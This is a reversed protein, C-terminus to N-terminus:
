PLPSPTASPMTALVQSWSLVLTGTQGSTVALTAAMSPGGKDDGTDSTPNVAAGMVLTGVTGFNDLLGHRHGWCGPGGKDPCDLNGSGIGDDYMWGYDADLGNSSGGAWETDVVSYDKGPDPPDNADNAGVQANSDLQTTLASFPPLGRDVRELNVAVFIQDPVTMAAYGPPLAMPKVGEQSRANDIAALVTQICGSSSDLGSSACVETYDPNPSITQPPDAIHTASANAPPADAPQLAASAIDAQAQDWTYVLGDPRNTTALTVALSTGGEDGRSTDGTPDFGAGMVLTARDGSGDSGFDDLVIHRDAWCGSQGSRHCGQISGPGDDYMWEYDADLANSIDGIWETDVSRFGRGPAGPLRAAAAATVAEADLVPSLGAFPDLGRDVREADLVVLLQEPVSLTAYDAPITMPKLHERARAADIAALTVRLCPTSQDPGSPSCAATYDPKATVSATPDRINTASSTPSSCSAVLLSLAAGMGAAVLLHSRGHSTRRVM